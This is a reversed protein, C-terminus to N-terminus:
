PRRCAASTEEILHCPATEIFENVLDPDHIPDSGSTRVLHRLYLLTATTILSVCASFAIEIGTM